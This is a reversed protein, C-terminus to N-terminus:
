KIKDTECGGKFGEGLNDFVLIECVMEDSGVVWPTGNITITTVDLTLQNGSTTAVPFINDFIDGGVSADLGYWRVVTNASNISTAGGKLVYNPTITYVNGSRTLVPRAFSKAPTQGVSYINTLNDVITQRDQTSSIGWKYCSAFWDFSYPHSDMAGIERIQLQQGATTNFTFTSVGAQDYIRLTTTPTSAQIDTVINWITTEYPVFNYIFLQQGTGGYSDSRYEFRQSGGQKDWVKIHGFDGNGRAGLWAEFKKSDTLRIVHWEEVNGSINFNTNNIYGIETGNSLHCYGGNEAFYRPLGGTGGFNRNPIPDSLSIATEKKYVSFGGAGGAKGPITRVVSGETVTAGTADATSKGESVFYHQDVLPKINALSYSIVTLTAGNSTVSGAGNSVVCTFVDQDDGAVPTYTYSSDTAGSINVGDKRWQYALTAKNTALVTFTVPQGLSITANQPHTTIYPPIEIRKMTAVLYSAV